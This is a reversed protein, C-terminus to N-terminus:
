HGKIAGGRAGSCCVHVSGALVVKFQRWVPPHSAGGGWKWGGLASLLPVWGRGVLRPDWPLFPLLHLRPHRFHLCFHLTFPSGPTPVMWLFARHADEIVERRIGSPAPQATPTSRPMSFHLDMWLYDRIDAKLTQSDPWIRSHTQSSSSTFNHVCNRRKRSFPNKPPGFWTSGQALHGPLSGKPLGSVVKRESEKAVNGVGVGKVWPGM